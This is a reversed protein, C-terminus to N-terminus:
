VTQSRDEVACVTHVWGCMPPFEGNQLTNRFPLINWFTYLQWKVSRNEQFMPRTQSCWKGQCDFVNVHTSLCGKLNKTSLWLIGQIPNLGINLSGYWISQMAVGRKSTFIARRMEHSYLDLDVSLYDWTMAMDKVSVKIWYLRVWLSSRVLAQDTPTTSIQHWDTRTFAWKHVYHNVM